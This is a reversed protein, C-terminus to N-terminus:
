IHISFLLEISSTAPGSIGYQDFLRRLVCFLLALQL